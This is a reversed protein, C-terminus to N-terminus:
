EVRGEALTLHEKTIGLVCCCESLRSAFHKEQWGGVIGAEKWHTGYTSPFSILAKTHDQRM